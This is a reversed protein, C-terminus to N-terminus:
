GDGAVKSDSAVIRDRSMFVVAGGSRMEIVIDWVGAPLELGARWTNAGVSPLSVSRDLSGSSPHQFRVTVDTNAAMGGDSRLITVVSRGPAVRRINADVKWARNDQERAAALSKNHSIGAVYANKDGLGSFTSSALRLMVMNVTIIVGFFALLMFLVMRGTLPRAATEKQM